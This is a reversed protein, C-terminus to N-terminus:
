WGCELVLLAKVNKKFPAEICLLDATCQSLSFAKFCSFTTTTRRFFRLVHHPLSQVTAIWDALELYGEKELKKEWGDEILIGQLTEFINNVALGSDFGLLLQLYKEVLSPLTERACVDDKKCLM